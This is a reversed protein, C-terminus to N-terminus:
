NVLGNFRNMAKEIGDAVWCEAQDAARSVALEMLPAEETSFKGLVHGTIERRGDKRGIGVKLRAYDRSGAHQEISELGHHGGSSGKPRLRLEGLPLDADDVVVLVRGLPLRYFNMAASVAEGSLNMFTQPQMLLVRQSGVQGKALRANFKKELDWGSKFRRALEEVVLFGANHRTRAYQLGPNGLGVVLFLSEM